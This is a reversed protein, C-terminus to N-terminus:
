RQVYDVDSGDPAWLKVKRLIGEADYWVERKFDPKADILFGATQLKRKGAEVSSDGLPTVSLPMIAGHVSSLLADQKLADRNWLSTPIVGTPAISKVGNMVVSLGDATRKVTLEHDSGNDHTTSELDILQGNEWIERAKHRFEFIPVFLVNVGIEVDITVTLRSGEDKFQILHHGISEGDRMLVFDLPTGSPSGAESPPGVALLVASVAAAWALRRCPAGGFTSHAFM